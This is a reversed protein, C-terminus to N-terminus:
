SFWRSLGALPNDRMDGSGNWIFSMKPTSSQVSLLIQFFYHDCSRSGLLLWCEHKESFILFFSYFTVEGVVKRMDVNGSSLMHIRCHQSKNLEVLSFFRVSAPAPSPSSAHLLHVFHPPPHSPFLFTNQFSVQPLLFVKKKNQKWMQLIQIRNLKKDLNKVKLKLKWAKTNKSTFLNPSTHEFDSLTLKPNPLVSLLFPFHILMCEWCDARMFKCDM